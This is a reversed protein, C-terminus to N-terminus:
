PSQAERARYFRIPNAATNTDNFILQGGVPKNTVLPVWDVLNTSGDIVYLLGPQGTLALRFGGNTPVALAFVSPPAASVTTLSVVANNDAVPDTVAAAVGAFNTITGARLPNVTLTVTATAGTSLLGLDATVLGSAHAASGQSPLASVFEVSGALRNTLVVNTAGSPGANSVVLTYVLPNGAVVPDPADAVSLALDASPGPPVVTDIALRWSAISGSDGATDDVVYLAWLGNPDTGNFAALQANTTVPTLTFFSEAPPYNTPRCTGNTILTSDPLAAAAADDFTLTVGSLSNGGGADSMLVVGQGGPGVLLIDVDDPFTHSLGALTVTVRSIVGAVNEVAITSPYPSANGSNPILIANSNTFFRITGLTFNFAVSGLSAAGDQLQLTATITQGNSGAATFSFPRAVAAGGPALAGYNQPAGPSTIGGGALLTATLNTTAATGTNRLSLSVTVTEGGDIVGNLPANGEVLIASGAAAVQPAPAVVTTVAVATNNALNTDVLNGAAIFSLGFTGPAAPLVQITATASAGPALAGAVFTVTGNSHTVSGQGPPAASVFTVGAPLTGTATVGYATAAGRNTVGVSYVLPFGVAAPDPADVLGAALDGPPNVPSLTSFDLSWGGAIFGQDGSTDDFVYLSWTGNPSLGNFIALSDGYPPGPAPSSFAEGSPAPTDYNTPRYTGSVLPTQNPLPGAADEFTLSLNTVSNGGGADGMLLVKQGGPGVLLVDVDDPFTHTFNSLTVTVRRLVGALNSVTIVSPYPGAKGSDPIVIAATNAVRSTSDLGFAFSVFGLEVPGDRLQLTATVSPLNTAATFTFPRAVAGSFTSLAGFSQPGSVPAVGGAALLTAVLNTALGPSTNQLALEVTVTEGREVAGNAPVLSEATIAAGAAAIVPAPNPPTNLFTLTNNAPNGDPTLAGVTYRNTLTSVSTPTLTVTVTASGGAPLLGLEFVALGPGTLFTGQSAAAGVFTASAPLQNTLVVPASSNPGLNTVTVTYTVNSGLVPTGSISGALALDAAGAGSISFDNTSIAFFINNAAEVKIRAATTFLPPLTVLEAGDNPTDAALVIPFTQGGNVSLRINVNTARVLANTTNAVNWTVNVAGSLNTPGRPAIVTFPGSTADVVAQMDATNVGGGGARNDRATVRFRMTRALSPLQEGVPATGALLNTLQPFIRFANTTPAFSRFLPSSGNDAAGLAQAPGLDRQEWCYTLSDGDPDSGSATLIFPTLRPITVNPGASVVPANNGTALNVACAGGVGGIFTLIEDFSISHFYADSSLQLNDAGCIGAYAMITSGSGPEYATPGNRNGGCSGTVSNFTHNGGFQHGMEHAVYDVYFPDGVPAAIGTTGQAKSGAVCVVGLGALGGSGTSFVHGIDYNASGIVGDVVTQNVTLMQIPSNNNYPDTVANTFVLLNNNAVLQLRVGLEAEFIGTVRNVAQVIANMGAAVTGGHFQTYEGNAACALRYRRLVPGSRLIERPAIVPAREAPAVFCTFGDAPRPYDRRFYSAHLTADGRFRPEVYFSGSPSLVQAYFGAPSWGFRGVAGPDDVGQGVYTKIDPFKAALEPEMVPSEVIRFSAFSGDPRPLRLLTPGAGPAEIPARGLVARLAAPNVAYHRAVPPTLWPALGRGRAAADESSVATWLQDNEDARAGATAWAAVFAALCRLLFSKM